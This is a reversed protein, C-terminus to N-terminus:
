RLNKEGENVPSWAKAHQGRQGKGGSLHGLTGHGMRSPETGRWYWHLM